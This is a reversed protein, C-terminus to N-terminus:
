RCDIPRSSIRWRMAIPCFAPRTSNTASTSGLLEAINFTNWFLPKGILVRRASPMMCTDSRNVQLIPLRIPRLFELRLRAIIQDLDFRLRRAGANNGGYVIAMPLQWAQLALCRSRCYEPRRARLRGEPTSIRDDSRAPSPQAPPSFRRPADTRRSM